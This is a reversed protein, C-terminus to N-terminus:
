KFLEKGQYMKERKKFLIVRKRKTLRKLITKSAKM